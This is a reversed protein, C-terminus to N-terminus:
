GSRGRWRWTVVQFEPGNDSPVPLGRRSVVAATALPTRGAPESVRAVGDSGRGSKVKVFRAITAHDPVVNGTIVRYAVDEHCHCEIARSWRQKTPHAYLLLTVTM